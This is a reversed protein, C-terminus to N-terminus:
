QTEGIKTNGGFQSAFANALQKPPASIPERRVGRRNITVVSKITTWGVPRRRFLAAPLHRVVDWWVLPERLLWKRRAAYRAQGALKMFMAPLVLYWPYRMAASLAENRAHRHHTRQENRNLGSFEHYVVFQNCQVIRFGADMVRIALDPEEYAHFFLDEFLGTMALMSRRIAAGCNVFSTCASEGALQHGPILSKPNEPGIVQFAVIGLEPDSEMREVIRACSDNELFRSDDDLAIIYKGSARKLIDNRSAISGRNRENRVINVSPFKARITSYTEDTSCDDVVIIESTIGTQALCSPLTKLLESVRNHTTIMFTVQFRDCESQILLVATGAIM